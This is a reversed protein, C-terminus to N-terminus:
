TTGPSRVYVDDAFDALIAADNYRVFLSDGHITGTAGWASNDFAFSISGCGEYAYTGSAVFDFFQFEFRRDDHLVYRHGPGAPPVEAVDYIGALDSGAPSAAANAEMTFTVPSGELGVAEAAVTIGGSVTPCFYARSIGDSGTHTPGALETFSVDSSTRFKGAGSLVTWTVSVGGVGAGQADVVRVAVPDLLLKDVEGQQDNGSVRVIAAPRPQSPPELPGPADGGCGLASVAGLVMRGFYPRARALRIRRAVSDTIRRM